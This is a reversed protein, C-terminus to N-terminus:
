ECNKKFRDTWCNCNKHGQVTWSNCNKSSFEFQWLGLSMFCQQVFEPFKMGLSSIRTSSFLWSLHVSVESYTKPWGSKRWFTWHLWFYEYAVFRARLLQSYDSTIILKHISNNKHANKGISTLLQFFVSITVQLLKIVRELLTVDRNYRKKVIVPKKRLFLTGM